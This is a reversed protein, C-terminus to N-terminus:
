IVKLLLGKRIDERVLLFPLTCIGERLNDTFNDKKLMVGYVAKM